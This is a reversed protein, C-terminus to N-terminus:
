KSKVEKPVSEEDPPAPSASPEAIKAPESPKEKAPAEEKKKDSPAEDGKSKSEGPSNM